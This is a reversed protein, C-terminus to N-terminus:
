KPIIKKCVTRSDFSSNCDLICPPPAIGGGGLPRLIDKEFDKPKTRRGRVSGGEKSVM